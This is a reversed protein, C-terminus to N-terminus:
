LSHAIPYATNALWCIVGLKNYSSGPTLWNEVMGWWPLRDTHLWYPYISQATIAMDFIGTGIEVVTFIVVFPAIPSNLQM